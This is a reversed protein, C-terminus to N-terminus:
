PKWGSGRQRQEAELWNRVNVNLEARVELAPHFPPFRSKSYCNFLLLVDFFLLVAASATTRVSTCGM